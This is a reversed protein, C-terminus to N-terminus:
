PVSSSYRRLELLLCNSCRFGSRESFTKPCIPHQREAWERSSLDFADEHVHTIQVDAGVQRIVFQQLRPM